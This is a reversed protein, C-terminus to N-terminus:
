PKALATELENIEKALDAELKEGYYQLKLQARAQSVAEQGAVKDGTAAALRARFLLPIIPNVQWTKVVGDVVGRAQDFQKALLAEKLTQDVHDLLQQSPQSFGDNLRCAISYAQFAKLYQKEQRYLTGSMVETARYIQDMNPQKLEILAADVIKRAGALDKKDVMAQARVAAVQYVSAGGQAPAATIAALVKEAEAAQGLKYLRRAQDLKLEERKEPRVQPHQSLKAVVAVSPELRKAADLLRIKEKAIKESFVFNEPRLKSAAELAELAADVQAQAEYLKAAKLWADERYDADFKTNSGVEKWLALARQPNKLKALGDAWRIKLRAERLEKDEKFPLAALDKYVSDLSAVAQAQDPIELATVSAMGLETDAKMLDYKAYQAAALQRYEVVKAKQGPDTATLFTSSMEHYAQGRQEPTAGELKAVFEYNAFTRQRRAVELGVRAREVPDITTLDRALVYAKIADDGLTQAQGYAAGAQDYAHFRQKDDKALKAAEMWLDGAQFAADKQDWPTKVGNNKNYQHKQMLATAKTQLEDYSQALACVCLWAALCLSLSTKRM